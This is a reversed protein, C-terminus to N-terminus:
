QVGRRLRVGCDADGHGPWDVDGGAGAEYSVTGATMVTFVVSSGPVQALVYAGPLFRLVPLPDAIFTGLGGALLFTNGALATADITIAVGQVGLTATGAGTLMGELAAAYDVTGAATM